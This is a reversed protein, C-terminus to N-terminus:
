KNEGRKIAIDYHSAPALFSNLKDQILFPHTKQSLLIFGEVLLIDRFRTIENKQQLKEAAPKFVLQTILTGYLTTLLAIALGKGMESPDGGMSDLMIILGVLTGIMGFAPAFGAMSKLIHVQVSKREFTTEVFNMMLTKIEASSYNVELLTSGDNLVENDHKDDEIVKKVSTDTKRVTNGWRIIRGVDKYLSKPSIDLHSFISLLSGLARFVYLEKYAILTSAFTGGIVLFLSALNLFMLYNSTKSLISYIFLAIGIMVGALTGFSIM